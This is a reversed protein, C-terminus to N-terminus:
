RKVPLLGLRELEGLYGRVERDALLVMIAEMARRRDNKMTNLGVPAKAVPNDPALIAEVQAAIGALRILVADSPTPINGATVPCVVRGRGPDISHVRM